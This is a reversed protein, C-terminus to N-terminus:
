VTHNQRPGVHFSAITDQSPSSTCTLIICMGTALITLDHIASLNLSLLPPQM